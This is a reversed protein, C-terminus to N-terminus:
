ELIPDFLLQRLRKQRKRRPSYKKPYKKYVVSHSSADLVFLFRNGKTIKKHNNIYERADSDIKDVFSIVIQNGFVNQKKFQIEALQKQAKELSEPSPRRDDMVGMIYKDNLLLRSKTGIYLRQFPTNEWTSESNLDWDSNSMLNTIQSNVRGRYEDTSLSM